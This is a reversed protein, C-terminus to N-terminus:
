FIQAATEYIPDRNAKARGLPRLHNSPYSLLFVLLFGDGDDEVEVNQEQAYSNSM